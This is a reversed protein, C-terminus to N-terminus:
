RAAWVALGLVVAVLTTAMLLTRLSFRYQLQRIWPLVAFTASILILLWHPVFFGEHERGFGFRGENPQVKLSRGYSWGRDFKSVGMDQKFFYVSGSNSVIRTLFIGSTSKAILELRWYSRVWLVILLVCAVGCFVSWAIQLKKLRLPPKTEDSQM